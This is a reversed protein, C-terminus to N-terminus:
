SRRRRRRLPADGGLNTFFASAGAIAAGILAASIQARLTLRVDRALLDVINIAGLAGGVHQAFTRAGRIWAERWDLGSSV